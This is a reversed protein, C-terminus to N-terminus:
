NPGADLASDNVLISLLNDQFTPNNPLDGHIECGFVAYTINLSSNFLGDSVQGDHRTGMASRRTVRGDGPEFMKAEVASRKFITGSFKLKRSQFVTILRKGDDILVPARLTAECDGCLVFSKMPIKLEPKRDLAEDFDRARLLVVQLYADQESFLSQLKQDAEAGYKKYMRKTISKRYDPDYYMWQYKKWTSIDYLDAVVPNMSSDLFEETGHHPLLQFVSPMSAAAISDIKTLFGIRKRDGGYVSYGEVLSRLADMSGENPTGVMVLKNVNKSGKWTVKADHQGLVDVGGYMIYYRAILGGLSHCILNFQLNPKDLKKKLADIKEALLQASDVNDRRWDYSFLYFTDKDGGPDPFDMNGRKYGAHKELTTILDEYVSIEPILFGLKAKDVVETAILDDANAKLNTSIPLDLDDETRGLKPWVEVGTVKNKLRSGLIGPIIIIPTKGKRESATKFIRTLDPQRNPRVCGGTSVVLILLSIFVIRYMMKMTLSNM